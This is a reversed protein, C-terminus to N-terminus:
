QDSLDAVPESIGGGAAGNPRPDQESRAQRHVIASTSITLCDQWLLTVIDTTVFQWAGSDALQDGVM